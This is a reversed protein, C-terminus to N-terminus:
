ACGPAGFPRHVHVAAEGDLSGVVQRKVEIKLRLVRQEPQCVHAPHHPRPLDHSGERQSGRAQEVLANWVPRVRPPEPFEHLLVSHGYESQGGRSNPGEHLVAFRRHRLM